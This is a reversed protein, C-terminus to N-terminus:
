KTSHILVVDENVTGRAIALWKGDRSWEFGFIRDSKVDTLPKPAGGDFPQAWINSIGERTDIYAIAHGDPAWRIMGAGEVQPIDFTKIPQGGDFPIVTVGGSTRFAILKGDPSITPYISVVETLRVPDGGDISVRWLGGGQYVVWRGDSSFQPSVGRSTLQTQDNGAINMRWIKFTGGRESVFVIYRGDPSVAPRDDAGPNVTLQRQETGNANMIWIDENGSAFSHYVIRGDPTWALGWRGDYRGPTIQRAHSVEGDPAVWISSTEDSQVTALTNSDSTVSLSHYSNPDNTIRRWVGSPYSLHWTQYVDPQDSAAMVLGSGDSLWALRGISFWRQPSIVRETGDEVNVGIVNAYRENSDDNYVGCALIKGDPSWAPGSFQSVFGVRSRRFFSPLTRKALKHRETADINAVILASERENESNWIFALRKGDPSLAIPTDIDVLLKRPAGGLVPVQYLAGELPRDSERVTYYIFNGDNSFTLGLYRVNAPPVIQVNSTTAVQRVWLSQKGADNVVHAAYKGDPSIAAYAAKGTTTLRQIRVTQFPNATGYQNRNLRYIWGAAAALLIVLVALAVAVGKERRKFENSIPNAISQAPDSVAHSAGAYVPTDEKQIETGKEQTVTSRTGEEPAMARGLRAENARNETLQKLDSLLAKATQYREDRDKRLARSLIGELEPPADPACEALPRPSDRLIAAVAENWSDGEFPARGAIMEYLLVGLSFIDTRPDLKEGRAQEPSMYRPTGIVVGTETSNRLLTSVQSGIGPPAGETLKALGFDLVKVIGDRRVMVNEPKIDRHMIGTEHAASLAAAIQLAIEIADSV